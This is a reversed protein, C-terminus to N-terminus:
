YAHRLLEVSPKYEIVDYMALGHTSPVQDSDEHKMHLSMKVQTRYVDVFDDHLRTFFEASYKKMSEGLGTCFHRYNLTLWLLVTVEWALKPHPYNVTQTQFLELTPRTTLLVDNVTM